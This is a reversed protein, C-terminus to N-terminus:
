VHFHGRFKAPANMSVQLVQSQSACSRLAAPARHRGGRGPVASGAREAAGPSGYARAPEAKVCVRWSEPAAARSGWCCLHPAIARAGRASGHWARRWGEARRPPSAMASGPAGTRGPCRPGCGGRAGRSGAPGHPATRRPSGRRRRCLRAPSQPPRPAPGARCRRHPM